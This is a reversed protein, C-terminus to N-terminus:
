HHGTLWPYVGPMRLVRLEGTEMCATALIRANPRWSELPFGSVPTVNSWPKTGSLWQLRTGRLHLSTAGLLDHERVLGQSFLLCDNEDFVACLPICIAINALAIEFM